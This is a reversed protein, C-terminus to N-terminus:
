GAFRRDVLIIRLIIERDHAGGDGEAQDAEPKGGPAAAAVIGGGVAPEGDHGGRGLRGVERARDGAVAGVHDLQQLGVRVWV